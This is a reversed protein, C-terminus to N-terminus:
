RSESDENGDDREQVTEAAHIEQLIQEVRDQYEVSKDYLFVIEAARRLRLREAIRRRLFPTARDLAKATRSRATADGLLTYYVRALQLDRTVQVRTITLFGIGPDKVDRTLLNSLESRIQDAVRDPRSGQAM